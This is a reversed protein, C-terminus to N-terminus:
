RCIRRAAAAADGPHAPRPQDGGASPHAGGDPRPARQAGPQLRPGALRGRGAWGGAPPPPAPPRAPPDGARGAIGAPPGAPRAALAAAGAGSRLGGSRGAGDRVAHHAAALLAPQRVGALRRRCAPCLRPRRATAGGYGGGGPVPIGGADPRPRFARVAPRAPRRRVGPAARGVGGGDDLRCAGDAHRGGALVGVPRAAREVGAGPRRRDWGAARPRGGGGGGGDGAGAPPRDAAGARPRRGTAHRGAGRWPDAGAAGGDGGPHPPAAPRRAAPGAAPADQDARFRGAGGGAQPAPPQDPHRHQPRLSDLHRRPAEGAARHAGGGAPRAGAAHRAPRIRGPQSAGGGPGAHAAGAAGPRAVLRRLGARAATRAGAGARRLPAPHRPHPGATRPRQLAQGSLRRRRGGARRHPRGRQGHRDAHHRPNGVQRAPWPVPQDRGGGAAHRRARHSRGAM